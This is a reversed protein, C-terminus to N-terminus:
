EYPHFPKPPFPVPWARCGCDHVPPVFLFVGASPAGGAPSLATELGSVTHLGGCEWQRTNLEYSCTCSFHSSSFLQSEANRYGNLAVINRMRAM